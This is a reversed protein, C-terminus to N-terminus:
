KAKLTSDILKLFDSDMFDHIKKSVYVVKGEHFVISVPYTNIMFKNSIESETDMVSEFNLSYKAEIKQINKLPEDQDGNIGLVLVKGKYREQFKVLNDFEKLCPICWSAWFNLVVIPTKENKLEISTSKTTSLKLGQFASEYVSYKQKDAEVQGANLHFDGWLIQSALFGTFAIIFLLFPVYKKMTLGLM